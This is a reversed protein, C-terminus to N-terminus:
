LSQVKGHSKFINSDNSPEGTRTPDVIVTAAVPAAVTKSLKETLDALSKRLSDVESKLAQDGEAKQVEVVPAAKEADDGGIADKCAKMCKEIHDGTKEHHAKLTELHGQIGKAKALAEQLQQDMSKEMGATAAEETQQVPATQETPAAPGGAKLKTIQESIVMLSNEITELKFAVADTLAPVALAVQEQGGDAKTMTVQAGKMSEVLAIPLCPSDVASVESPDATYRTCGKNDPDPWRKVYAGGQSFGVFVGARWKKVAEGDVVHFGMRITKTADDYDITRGAGQSILQHMERLPMMSPTMGPISTKKLNEAARKEYYAKTTAYDCVERELDPHEATVIGYVHLTGDSQEEMKELPLFKRLSTSM